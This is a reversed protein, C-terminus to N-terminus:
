ALLSQPFTSPIPHSQSSLGSWTNRHMLCSALLAEQRYTSTGLSLPQEQRPQALFWQGSYQCACAAYLWNCQQYVLRESKYPHLSSVHIRTWWNQHACDISKSIAHAACMAPGITLSSSPSSYAGIPRCGAPTRNLIKPLVKIKNLATELHPSPNALLWYWTIPLAEKYRHALWCVCVCVCVILLMHRIPYSSTGFLM